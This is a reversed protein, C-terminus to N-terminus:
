DCNEPDPLDKAKQKTGDEFLIVLDPNCDGPVCPEENKFYWGKIQKCQGQTRIRNKETFTDFRIMAVPKNFFVFFQAGSLIRVEL